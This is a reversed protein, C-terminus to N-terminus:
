VQVLREKCLVQYKLLFYGRATTKLAQMSVKTFMM